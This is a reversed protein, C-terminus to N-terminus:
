RHGAVAPADVAPAARQGVFAPGAASNVHREHQELQEMFVNGVEFILNRTGHYGVSVRHAAGLRDFTPIGARYFPIGLRGAAQRGHSHAVLLNASTANVEFDQLDGIQVAEAAVRELIPADQPAVACSVTAGM